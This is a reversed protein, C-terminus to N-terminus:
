NSSTSRSCCKLSLMCIQTTNSCLAHFVHNIWRLAFLPRASLTLRLLYITVAHLTTYLNWHHEYKRSRSAYRMDSWARWKEHSSCRGQQLVTYVSLYFLSLGWSMDHLCPPPPPSVYLRYENRVETSLHPHDVGRGVRPFFWLVWQVFPQTSWLALTSLHTSSFIRQGRRPEIVLSDLGYRTAICIM